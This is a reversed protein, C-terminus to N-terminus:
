GSTVHLVGNEDKWFGASLAGYQGAAAPAISTVSILLGVLITAFGCKAFFMEFGAATHIITFLREIVDWRLGPNHWCFVIPHPRPPKGRL